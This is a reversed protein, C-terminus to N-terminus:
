STQHRAYKGYRQGANRDEHKREHRTNRKRLAGGHQGRVARDIVESQQARGALTLDLGHAPANQIIKRAAGALAVHKLEALDRLEVGAFAFRGQAIKAGAGPLFAVGLHEPEVRRVVEILLTDLGSVAVGVAVGVTDGNLKFLRFGLRELEPGFGHKWG